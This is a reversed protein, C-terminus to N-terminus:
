GCGGSLARRKQLTVKPTYELEKEVHRSDPDAGPQNSGLAAEFRHRLESEDVTGVDVVCHEHGAHGFLDLWGNIGGELIYVNLISQATLLKWAETARAEGNSMVVVVSSEPLNLLEPTLAGGNIMELTVRRADVFHFLNYDGEDRVDLQVLNVMDNRALDILEGPHIQVQREALLAEKEQAMREWMDDASPQGIIMVIAAVALLAAAGILRGRAPRRAALERSGFISELKEGGWFMFLAMLVILVVVVGTPLGLWEPLTFRGM